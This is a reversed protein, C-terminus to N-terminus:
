LDLLTCVTVDNLIKFSLGTQIDNSKHFFIQVMFYVFPPIELHLPDKDM